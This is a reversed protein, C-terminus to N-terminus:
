FTPPFRAARQNPRYAPVSGDNVPDTDSWQEVLLQLPTLPQSSQLAINPRYSVAHLRHATSKRTPLHTFFPLISIPM